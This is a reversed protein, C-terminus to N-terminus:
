IRTYFHFAGWQFLRQWWPSDDMDKLTVEKSSALDKEFHSHLQSAIKTDLISLNVELNLRDSFRDFNFSGVQCYLKDIVITKAHLIRHQLEFIRVGDRLLTRYVHQAAMRAAPVDAFGQGTTLIRVDVGRKAAASLLIKLRQPPVFYPNTIYITNCAHKVAIRVSKQIYRADRWVNSRLVQVLHQGKEAEAKEEATPPAITLHPPLSKRFHRYLTTVSVTGIAEDLSEAFCGKLDEVGPGTVKLHTDRFNGSPKFGAYEEAINIGGAFAVKDDVVLVKRHNRYLFTRKTKWFALVPNFKVVHANPYQDLVKFFNPSLETQWSGVADYLLTVTVGKKAAVELSELTRRGIADNAFIYTEMIVYHEAKEIASWMERLVQLGNNYVSVTNNFSTGGLPLLLYTAQRWRAIVRRRYPISSLSHLMAPNFVENVADSLLFEKPASNSFRLFATETQEKAKNLGALIPKVAKRM